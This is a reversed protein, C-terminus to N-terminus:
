NRLTCDQGSDFNIYHTLVEVAHEMQSHLQYIYFDTTKMMIIVDWRSCTPTREWHSRIYRLRFSSWVRPVEYQLAKFGPNERGLAWQSWQGCLFSCFLPIGLDYGIGPLQPPFVLFFSYLRNWITTLNYPM